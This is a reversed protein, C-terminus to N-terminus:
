IGVISSLASPFPMVTLMLPTLQPSIYFMAGLGASAMVVSRLGDSVNQTVSEGVIISDGVEQRLAAAYTRERLRVVIRQGAICRYSNREPAMSGVTSYLTHCLPTLAAIKFFSSAVEAHELPDLPELNVQEVREM